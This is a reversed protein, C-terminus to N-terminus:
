QVIIIPKPYTYSASCGQNFYATLKVMYVGPNRYVKTPMRETSTTGDGFDWVFRDGEASQNLFRIPTNAKQRDEVMNTRFIPRLESCNLEDVRLLWFDDKADPRTKDFTNVKRALVYFVGPRAEVVDVGTEDEPGGFTQQWIINGDPDTRILWVDSRGKQLKSDLSKYFGYGCLIFGGDSCPYISTLQDLGRGGWKLLKLVKGERDVLAMWFQKGEKETFVSGVAALNGYNNECVRQPMDEYPERIVTSWQQKGQPDAKLLWIDGNHRTAANDLDESNTFGLTIFGGDKTRVMSQGWDNKRGGFFQSKVVQGFRNLYLLWLNNLQDPPNNQCDYDISWSSGVLTFGGAGPDTLAIGFAQDQGTGGFAKSWEVEGEPRIKGVWYDARHRPNEADPHTLNTSTVGAFFLNALNDSTLDRIEDYGAGGVQRQWLERGQLDVKVVVGNTVQNPDHTYGGLYLSSDVALILRTPIDVAPTGYFKQWRLLPFKQAQVPLTFGLLCLAIAFGYRLSLREYMGFTDIPLM